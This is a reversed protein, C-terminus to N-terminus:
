NNHCNTTAQKTTKIVLIEDDNTFNTYFKGNSLWIERNYDEGDFTIEVSGSYDDEDIYLCQYTKENTKMDMQEYISRSMYKLAKVKFKNESNLNLTNIVKFMIGAIVLIVLCTIAITKKSM